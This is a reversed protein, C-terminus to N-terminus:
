NVSNVCDYFHCKIGPEFFEISGAKYYKDKLFMPSIQWGWLEKIYSHREWVTLSVMTSFVWWPPAPMRNSHCCGHRCSKFVVKRSCAFMLWTALYTGSELFKWCLSMKYHNQYCSSSSSNLWGDHIAISFFKGWKSMWSILCGIDEFETPHPTPSLLSPSLSLLWCLFLQPLLPLPEFYYDTFVCKNGGM